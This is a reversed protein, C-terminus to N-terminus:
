TRSSSLCHVPLCVLFYNIGSLTSSTFVYLLYSLPVAPHSVWPEFLSSPTDFSTVNSRREHPCRKAEGGMRETEEKPWSRKLGRGWRFQLSVMGQRLKVKYKKCKVSESTVRYFAQLFAKPSVSTQAQLSLLSNICWLSGRVIISPMWFVLEGEEWRRSPCNYLNMRCPREFSVAWATWLLFDSLLTSGEETSWVM